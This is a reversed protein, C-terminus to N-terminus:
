ILLFILSVYENLDEDNEKLEKIISLAGPLYSIFYKEDAWNKLLNFYIVLSEKHRLLINLITAKNYKNFFENKIAEFIKSRFHIFKSIEQLQPIDTYMNFYLIFGFKQADCFKEGIEALKYTDNYSKLLDYALKQLIVRYQFFLNGYSFYLLSIKTTNIYKEFLLFTINSYEKFYYFIEDIGPYNVFKHLEFFIISMNTNNNGESYELINLLYDLININSVNNKIINILDSIFTENLLLDDIMPNVFTIDYIETFNKVFTNINTKNNLVEPNSKLSNLINRIDSYINNKDQNPRFTESDKDDTKLHVINLLLYLLLFKFVLVM